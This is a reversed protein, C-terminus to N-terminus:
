EIGFTEVGKISKSSEVAYFSPQPSISTSTETRVLRYQISLNVKVINRRFSCWFM